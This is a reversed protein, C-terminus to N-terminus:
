YISITVQTLGSWWGCGCIRFFDPRYMDVIRGTYKAPGYDNVVREICGAAGCIVIVTGRPLRMATTGNDYFSATGTMKYRPPKWDWRSATRPLAAAARGVTAAARAGSAPDVLQTLDDLAGASVSAPDFAMVAEQSVDRTAALNVQRFLAADLPREPSPERSGALGPLSGVALAATLAAIAVTRSPRVRPRYPM